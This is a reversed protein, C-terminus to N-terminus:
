HQPFQQPQQVRELKAAKTLARILNAEAHSNIRNIIMMNIGALRSERLYVLVGSWQEKIKHRQARM